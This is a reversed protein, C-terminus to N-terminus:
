EETLVIDSLPRKPVHHVGQSDRWYRIDGSEPLPELLVTEAPKGLAIVMLIELHEPIKLLARLEKRLVSVMMCAGLGREAAALVITQAAIGQDCGFTTAITTDGLMVVYASPREGLDPGPWDPLYGAWALLPFIKQNKEPDTSLVYRLPQRNGSSACIRATDIFELLLEPDVAYSEDFRRFSRAKRVLEPITM